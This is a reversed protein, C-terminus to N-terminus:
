RKQCGEMRERPRWRKGRRRGDASGREREIAVIDRREREM